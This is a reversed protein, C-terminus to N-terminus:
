TQASIQAKVEMILFIGASARNEALGPILDGEKM